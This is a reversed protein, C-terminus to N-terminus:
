LGLAGIVLLLGWFSPIGFCFFLRHRQSSIIVSPNNYNNYNYNNNNCLVFEDATYDQQLFFVVTEWM